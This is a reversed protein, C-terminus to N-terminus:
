PLRGLKDMIREKERATKKKIDIVNEIKERLYDRIEPREDVINVTEGPDGRIDFLEEERGHPRGCLQCMHGGSLTYIYKYRDTRVARKRQAHAEEVFLSDRFDDYGDHILASMDTGDCEQYVGTNFLNFLTPLIDVHQVLTKIRKGKPLAKHLLILPVHITEDYLGHHDFYIEHETLSEGHDATVVFLTDELAGTESLYTMLREINSDVYRIAGNYRAIVERTSKADKICKKMYKRWNKTKISKLVTKIEIHPGDVFEEYNQSSRYPIHTDWYHLFLFFKSKIEKLTKIAEDTVNEANSVREALVGERFISYIQHPFVKKLSIKKRKKGKIGTYHHFGRQHWSSLWDVAANEYGKDKLIQPLLKIKRKDFTELEEKKRKLGHSLIGHSIPYLGSFISTLSPDTANTCSFANEFLVGNNAIKDITPSTNKPYGYCGVNRARLADIVIFVLNVIGGKKVDAVGTNQLAEKRQLRKEIRRLPLM